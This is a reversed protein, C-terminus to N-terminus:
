VDYIGGGVARLARRHSARIFAFVSPYELYAATAAPDTERKRSVRSTADLLQM